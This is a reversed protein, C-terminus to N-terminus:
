FVKLLNAHIEFCLAQAIQERCVPCFAEEETKYGSITLTEIRSTKGCKPCAKDYGDVSISDDLM